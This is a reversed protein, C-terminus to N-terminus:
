LRITACGPSHSGLCYKVELHGKGLTQELKRTQSHDGLVAIHATSQVLLHMPMDVIRWRM